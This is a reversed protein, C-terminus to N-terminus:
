SNSSSTPQPNGEGSGGAGNPQRRKSRARAAEGTKARLRSGRKGKGKTGTDEAQDEGGATDGGVPAEVRNRTALTPEAAIADETGGASNLQGQELENRRTLELPNKQLYTIVAERLWDTLRMGSAAVAEDIQKELSEVPRFGMMRGKPEEGPAVAFSTQNRKQPQPEKM